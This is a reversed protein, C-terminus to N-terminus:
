FSGMEAKLGAVEDEAGATADSDGNAEQVRKELREAITTPKWVFQIKFRNTKVRFEKPEQPKEEELTKPKVTTIGVIGDTAKPLEGYTDAAYSFRPDVWKPNRISELKVNGDFALIPYSIGLEEM